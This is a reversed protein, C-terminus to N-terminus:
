PLPSQYLCCVSKRLRRLVSPVTAARGLDTPVHLMAALWFRGLLSIKFLKKHLNLFSVIFSDWNLIFNMLSVEGTLDWAELSVCNRKGLFSLLIKGAFSEAKEEDSKESQGTEACFFLCAFFGGTWSVEETTRHNRPFPEETNSRIFCVFNVQKIKETYSIFALLGILIRREKSFSSQVSEDQGIYQLSWLLPAQSIQQNKVLKGLPGCTASWVPLCFFYHKQSVFTKKLLIIADWLNNFTGNVTYLWWPEEPIPKTPFLSSELRVLTLWCWHGTHM